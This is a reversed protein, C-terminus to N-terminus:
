EERDLLRECVIHRQYCLEFLGQWACCVAGHYRSSPRIAAHQARPEADLVGPSDRHALAM